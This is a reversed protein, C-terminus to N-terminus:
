TNCSMLDFKLCKTVNALVLLFCNQMLELLVNTSLANEIIKLDGRQLRAKNKCLKINYLLQHTNGKAMLGGVFITVRRFKNSLDCKKPFHCQYQEVVEPLINLM